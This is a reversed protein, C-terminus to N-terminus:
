STIAALFQAGYHQLKHEGVGNIQLFETDNKPKTAAMEILSADSFIVFPPVNKEDALQKRLTRLKEFLDTDYENFDGKIKKKLKKEKTLKVRPKAFILTEEGRLIPRAKETLKLVSFNAIDQELYNHHILQRIISLWEDKNLDSGIGYTSLQDHRMNKIRQNESGRLVDVVYGIGYGQQLRYVCSLAKQAVTTADFTEPPNLCIDCNDCVVQMEEDFYNLLAKRRCARSEAIAAMANLKHLEIRKQEPNQNKEILSKIKPVDGLSLLLLAEAPLGDRGARGTEQYYGEVSKPLDLHIVFRVNPKDIGMGFAITAVIIDIDDKQFAAQNQQREKSNLGAHYPAARFGQAQLKQATEMVKARSFCYIIGAENKHTELFTIIQNLPKNKDIVTYRINPRNFSAQHLQAHPLNLQLRIDNLTQKDATATLAITPINPFLEKLKGLQSYEPRFDHGWVSVCHAEDIAFLAIDIEQLRALFSPAMLREPAVYLLDLQKTHLQELVKRAASGTLSSNYFEANVGTAQLTEVQDQMLSILPSIIIGVGSRQIAPIQYCISKGSGTPMLVINNEGNILSNIIDEQQPRFEKFGFIHTLIDRANNNM